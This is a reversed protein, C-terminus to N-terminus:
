SPRLKDYSVQGGGNQYFVSHAPALILILVVALTQLSAEGGCTLLHTPLRDNPTVDAQATATCLLLAAAGLVKHM